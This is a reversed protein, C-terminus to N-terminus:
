AVRVAAKDIGWIRRIARHQGDPMLHAYRTVLKIDSWGGAYQLAILDRNLAYHWSAFTHRLDHPGVEAVFRTTQSPRDKRSWEYWKGPLGARECTAGWATRLQGGGGDIDAYPEGLHTRFVRGERHKLGALAM